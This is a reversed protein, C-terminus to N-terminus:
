RSKKIERLVEAVTTRGPRVGQVSLASMADNISMEQVADPNATLHARIKEKMSLLQASESQAGQASPASLARSPLINATGLYGKVESIAKYKAERDPM